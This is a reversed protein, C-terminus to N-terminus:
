ALDVGEDDSDDHAFDEFEDTEDRHDTHAVKPKVRRKSKNHEDQTAASINAKERLKKLCALELAKCNQWKAKSRGEKAM